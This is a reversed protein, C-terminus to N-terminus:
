TGLFGVWPALVVVAAPVLFAVSDFYSYIDYTLADTSTAMLCVIWLALPVLPSALWVTVEVCRWAVGHRQIWHLMPLCAFFPLFHEALFNVYTRAYRNPGNAYSGDGILLGDYSVVIANTALFLATFVSLSATSLLHVALALCENKGSTSAHAVSMAVRVFLLLAGVSLSCNTFFTFNTQISSATISAFQNYAVASAFLLLGADLSFVASVGTSAVIAIAVLEAEAGQGEFTSFAVVVMVAFVTAFVAMMSAVPSFPWRSPKKGQSPPSFALVLTGAANTWLASPCVNMLAFRRAKGAADCATSECGTGSFLVSLNEQQDSMSAMSWVASALILFGGVAAVDTTTRESASRDLTHSGILYAACGMGVLAGHATSFVSSMSCFAYSPSLVTTGNWGEIVLSYNAVNGANWIAHRLLRASSYFLCSAAFVCVGEEKSLSTAFSSAVGNKWKGDVVGADRMHAYLCLGCALLIFAADAFRTPMASVHEGGVATAVLLAALVLRQAIAWTPLISPSALCAVLLLSSGRMSSPSSGIGEDLPDLSSISDYVISMGFLAVACACHCAPWNM